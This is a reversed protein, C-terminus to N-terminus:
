LFFQFYKIEYSQKCLFFELQKNKDYLISVLFLKRM